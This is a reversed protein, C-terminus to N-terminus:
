GLFGKKQVCFPHEKLKYLDFNLRTVGGFVLHRMATDYKTLSVTKKEQYFEFSVIVFQFNVM